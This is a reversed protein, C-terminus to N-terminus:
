SGPNHQFLGLGQRTVQRQLSPFQGLVSLAAGRAHALVPSPNGFLRLLGDTFKIIRDVDDKRAVRYQELHLELGPDEADKLLDALFSLDRLALNFGQGAVPHISYAANGILLCRPRYIERARMLKLPYIQRKSCEEFLGVRHGFHQQLRALFADQDLAMLEDALAPPVPWVMSYQGKTALPLLAIPGHTTFREYAVGPQYASASVNSIVATQEYDTLDSEIELASRVVSNTGDAGVLLKCSMRQRVADSDFALTVMREHQEFAIDTVQDHLAISAHAAVLDHLSALMKHNPVLYGLSPLRETERTLRTVGFHGKQSVHVTQIEAIQDTLEDWVGLRELLQRSGYGLATNRVDDPVVDVAIRKAELLLIKKGSGALALALSAGVVGAGIICVDVDTDISM